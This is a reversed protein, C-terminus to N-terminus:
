IVEIKRIYLADFCCNSNPETLTYSNYQFYTTPHYMFEKENTSHLIGTLVQDDYFEVRVKKGLMSNLLTRTVRGSWDIRQNCKNCYEKTDRFCDHCYPCCPVGEHGEPVYPKTPISKISLDDLKDM